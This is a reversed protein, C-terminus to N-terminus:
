LTRYRFESRKGNENSTLAGLVATVTTGINAGIALSISNIYEIQGSAVATIILAM